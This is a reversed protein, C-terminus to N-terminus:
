VPAMEERGADAAGTGKAPQAPRSESLRPLQITFRSGEGPESWVEIRGGHAEVIKRVIWLGLGFGGFHRVSVLREFREFIRERAEPAIGIGHDRVSLSATM